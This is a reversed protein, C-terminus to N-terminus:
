FLTFISIFIFYFYLYVIFYSMIKAASVLNPLVFFFNM